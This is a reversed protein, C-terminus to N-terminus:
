QGLMWRASHHVSISQLKSFGFCNHKLLIDLLLISPRIIAVRISGNRARLWRFHQPFCLSCKQKSVWTNSHTAKKKVKQNKSKNWCDSTVIPASGSFVCVEKGGYTSFANSLQLTFHQCIRWVARKELLMSWGATGFGRKYLLLLGTSCPLCQAKLWRFYRPFAFIHCSSIFFTNSFTITSLTSETHRKLTRKKLFFIIAGLGRWRALCSRVLCTPTFSTVM